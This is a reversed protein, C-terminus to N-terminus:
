AIEHVSKLLEEAKRFQAITADMDIIEDTTKRYEGDFVCVTMYEGNGFRIPKVLNLQINEAQNKITKHWKSRLSRRQDENKVWIKFCFKDQELQLYQECESNGQFHWWFGLFGGNPNAVYDWHGDGLRKQLELYFGIWSYWSWKSLEITKYSKIKDTISQLYNRYDVLISNTGKYSNM